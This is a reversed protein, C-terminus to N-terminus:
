VGKLPEQWLLEMSDELRLMFMFKCQSSSGLCSNPCLRPVSFIANIMEDM